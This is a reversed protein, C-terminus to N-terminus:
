MGYRGLTCREGLTDRSMSLGDGGIALVACWLWIMAGTTIGWRFFVPIAQVRGAGCM